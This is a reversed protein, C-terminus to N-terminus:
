VSKEKWGWMKTYYLKGKAIDNQLINPCNERDTLITNIAKLYLTHAKEMVEIHIDKLSEEGTIEVCATSILNGTDIGEDLWMITNGILHPENNSLCWNTCNPGGKIYPSLGTHLNIIGCQPKVALLEAKILSTGSVCILNPKLDETFLKSEKTNIKMVHLIAVEPWKNYKGSYFNLMNFWAADIKSFFLKEFFRIVFDKVSRKQRIQSEIIIGILDHKEAIKNALAIQNPSNGCWLIIKSETM